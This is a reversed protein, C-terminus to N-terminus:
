HYQCYDVRATDGNDFVFTLRWHSILGVTWHDALRGKLSHLRLNSPLTYM